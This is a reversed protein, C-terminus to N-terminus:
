KVGRGLGADMAMIFEAMQWRFKDLDRVPWFRGQVDRDVKPDGRMYDVGNPLQALKEALWAKARAAAKVAQPKKSTEAERVRADLTCLYEYDVAGQVLRKLWVTPPGDALFTQV